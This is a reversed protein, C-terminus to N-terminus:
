EAKELYSSVVFLVEGDLDIRSWGSDPSYGTRHVKEGKKLQTKVTNNGQATSPEIRLNVYEKPTVYDNCDQFIIVKGEITTVRNADEELVIPRYGLDPTLFKTAAYVTEGNYELKSWGMEANYGVRKAVEGNHLQAVVTKESSTNPVNRLNTVDRATVEEEIAVFEMTDDGSIPDDTTWSDTPEESKTPEEALIDVISTSSPIVNSAVTNGVTESTKKTHSVSWVITCIIFVGILIGCFAILTALPSIKEDSSDNEAEWKNLSM